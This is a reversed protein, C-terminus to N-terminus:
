KHLMGEFFSHLFLQSYKWYSKWSHLWCISRHVSSLFVSESSLSSISVAIRPLSAAVVLRPHFVYLRQHTSPLYKGPCLRCIADCSSSSFSRSNGLFRHLLKYGNTLFTWSVCVNDSIYQWIIHFNSFSNIHTGLLKPYSCRSFSFFSVFLVLCLLFFNKM